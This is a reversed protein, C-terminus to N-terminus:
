RGLRFGAAYLLTCLTKADTIGGDRARELAESMRLRVPEMFEDADRRVTGETLDWAMFLHIREDSFGPTTLISTLRELRGARVGVEEELERRAVEEWPEGERDPRGAPVELLYGGASYRYQRVLLIHPDDGTPDSLFPLVAAAGSHRIHELEGTSADPFRVTDLSLDVIRGPHVRRREVLGADPAPEVGQGPAPERGEGRAPAEPDPGEGGAAPGSM